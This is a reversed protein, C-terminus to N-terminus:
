MEAPLVDWSTIQASPLLELNFSVACQRCYGAVLAEGGSYKLRLQAEIQQTYQSTRGNPGAAASGPQLNLAALSHQAGAITSGRLEQRRSQPSSVRVPLSAHGSSSVNSYHSISSSGFDSSAPGTSSSPVPCVFDADAYIYLVFEISGLPALPLQAQFLLIVNNDYMILQCLM